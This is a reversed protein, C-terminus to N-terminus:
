ETGTRFRLYRSRKRLGSNDVLTSPVNASYRLAIVHTALRWGCTGLCGHDVVESVSSGAPVARQVGNVGSGVQSPAYSERLGDRGLTHPVVGPRSRNGGEPEPTVDLELRRGELIQRATMRRGSVPDLGDKVLFIYSSPV